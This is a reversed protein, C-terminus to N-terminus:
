VKEACLQAISRRIVKRWFGTKKDLLNLKPWKILLTSCVGGACRLMETPSWCQVRGWSHTENPPARERGCGQSRGICGDRGSQGKFRKSEAGSEFQYDRCGVRLARNLHAKSCQDCDQVAPIQLGEACDGRTQGRGEPQPWSWGWRTVEVTLVLNSVDLAGTCM